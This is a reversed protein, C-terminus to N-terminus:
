ASQLIEWQPLALVQMETGTPIKCLRQDNTVFVDAKAIVASALQIADPPRLSKSEARLAAFRTAANLDFAVVDLQSFARQYRATEASDGRLMPHVLIEGVTLSSTILQHNETVIWDAFRQAVLHNPGQEWLYIFLNTDWFLRM